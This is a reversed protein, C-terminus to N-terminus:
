ESFAAEEELTAFLVKGPNLLALPDLMRKVDRMIALTGAGLERRLFKRKTV